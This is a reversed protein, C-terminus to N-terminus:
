RFSKRTYVLGMVFTIDFSKIPDKLNFHISPKFNLSQLFVIKWNKRFSLKMESLHSLLLIETLSIQEEISNAWSKFIFWKQQIFNVQADHTKWILLCFSM